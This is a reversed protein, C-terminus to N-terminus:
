SSRLTQVLAYGMIGAIMVGIGLLDEKRKGKEVGWGSVLKTWGSTERTRVSATNRQEFYEHCKHLYFALKPHSEVLTTRLVPDPM